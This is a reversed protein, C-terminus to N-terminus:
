NCIAVQCSNNVCAFHACATTGDACVECLQPLVGSCDAATNCGVCRCLTRNFVQGAPCVFPDCVPCAGTVEMDCGQGCILSSACGMAPNHCNFGTGGNEEQCSYMTWGVPCCAAPECTGPIDPIRNPVCRLGSACSCPNQTFGGCPGDEQSVCAPPPNPVCKCLVPDWHDGAICLVRQVCKIPRLALASERSSMADDAPAVGCASLMLVSMVTAVWVRQNM